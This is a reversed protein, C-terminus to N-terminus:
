KQSPLALNDLSHKCLYLKSESTPPNDHPANIYASGATQYIQDKGLKGEM